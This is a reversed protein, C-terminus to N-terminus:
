DKLAQWAHRIMEELNYKPQWGLEKKAKTSDAILIPPDGVRRPEEKATIKKELVKEATAIM